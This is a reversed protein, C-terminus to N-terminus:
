VESRMDRRKYRKRPVDIPEDDDPKPQDSEADEGKDDDEDSEETPEDVMDKRHAVYVGARILPKAAEDPLDIVNGNALARVIV